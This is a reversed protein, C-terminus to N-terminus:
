IHYVWEKYQTDAPNFDDRPQFRTDMVEVTECDELKLLRYGPQGKANTFGLAQWCVLMIQNRSTRCIGYPHVVRVLPERAMQLRCALRQESARWLLETIEEMSFSFKASSAIMEVRTREIFWLSIILGKTKKHQKESAHEADSGTRKSTSSTVVV